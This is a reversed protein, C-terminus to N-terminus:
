IPPLLFSLSTGQLKRITKKKNTRGWLIHQPKGRRTELLVRNRKKKKINSKPRRIRLSLCNISAGRLYIVNASKKFKKKLLLANDAVVHCLAMYSPRSGSGKSLLFLFCIFSYFHFAKSTLIAFSPSITRVTGHPSQISRITQTYDRPTIGPSQSECICM